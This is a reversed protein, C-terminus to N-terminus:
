RVTGLGQLAIIPGYLRNNGVIAPTATRNWLFVTEHDADNRFSNDTVQIQPTPYKVGEEGIAIAVKYNDSSPGKELTNGRVILAGGDPADILFSSTGDPGDTITCGIVETRRARSKISHGQRTESFRSHIVRLLDVAGVYLAHAWQRGLRGDRIFVSDRVTVTAGPFGGLVGMENELFTVGEVTLDGHELRVGSGNKDPVRSHALTLNRITTHNGDVIFIGKGSCSKDAIVVGPRDGEILLNGARWVACDVYRGPDIEVRDGTRAAAAAASPTPYAEGPGVKLNAAAGRGAIGVAFVLVALTRGLRACRM